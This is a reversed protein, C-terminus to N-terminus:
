VVSSGNKIPNKVEVGPIEKDLCRWNLGIPTRLNNNNIWRIPAQEAWDGNWSDNM